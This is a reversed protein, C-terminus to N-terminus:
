WHLGIYRGGANALGPLRVLDIVTQDARLTPLAAGGLDSHTVILTEAHQVV